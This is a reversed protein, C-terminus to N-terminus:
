LLKSLILLGRNKIISKQHWFITRIAPASNVQTRRSVLGEDYLHKFTKYVIKEVDKDLTFHERTWDCSAGMSKLQNEMNIKQKQVYNFIMKFLTERDYDFRSKGEEKLKKEFVFQTEIGAHDAGPLWLTNFGKMRKYRIITDEIAIFRSHGIHLSENANPPPMIITFPKKHKDATPTFASSKEWLNYIHSEHDYHNYTKDM